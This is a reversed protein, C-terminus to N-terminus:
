DRIKLIFNELVYREIKSVGEPSLTDVFDLHKGSLIFLDGFSQYEKILIQMHNAQMENKLTLPKAKKYIARVRIWRLIKLVLSRLYSVGIKKEVNYLKYLKQSEDESELYYILMKVIDM